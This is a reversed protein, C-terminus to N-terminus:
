FTGVKGILKLYENKTQLLRELPDAAGMLAGQKVSPQPKVDIVGTDTHLHLSLGALGLDKIGGGGHWAVGSPRLDILYGNHWLRARLQLPEGRADIRLAVGSKSYNIQLKQYDAQMDFTSPSGAIWENREIVALVEGSQDKLVASILLTGQESVELSLLPEDDITVIPGNGVIVVGGVQVAPYDQHSVLLGESYGRQINFPESQFKRQQELTFAGKTAMDHCTPCLDM